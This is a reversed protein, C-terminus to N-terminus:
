VDTGPGPRLTTKSSTGLAQFLVQCLVPAGYSKAFSHVSCVLLFPLLRTQHPLIQPVSPWLPLTMRLLFHLHRGKGPAPLHLPLSFLALRAPPPHPPLQPMKNEQLRGGMWGGVRQGGGPAPSLDKQLRQLSLLHPRLSARSARSTQSTRADQCLLARPFTLLNSPAGPLRPGTPVGCEWTGGGGPPEGPETHGLGPARSGLRGM